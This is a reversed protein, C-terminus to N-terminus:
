MKLLYFVGLKDLLIARSCSEPEHYFNKYGIPDFEDIEQHQDAFRPNKDITNGNKVPAGVAGVPHNRENREMRYDDATEYDYDPDGGEYEEDVPKKKKKKAGKDATSSKPKKTDATKDTTKSKPKSKAKDKTKKSAKEQPKAKEENAADAKKKKKKVPTDEAEADDTKKVKKDEKKKKPKGVKEEEVEDEDKEKAFEDKDTRKGQPPKFSDNVQEIEKDKKEEKEEEDIRGEM